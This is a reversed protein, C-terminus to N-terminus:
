DQSSSHKFPVLVRWCTKQINRTPSFSSYSGNERYHSDPLSPSVTPPSPMEGVRSARFTRQSTIMQKKTHNKLMIIKGYLCAPEGTVNQLAAEKEKRPHRTGLLSSKVALCRVTSPEQGFQEKWADRCFVFNLSNMKMTEMKKISTSSHKDSNRSLKRFMSFIM